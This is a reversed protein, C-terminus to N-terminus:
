LVSAGNAAEGVDKSPQIWSDTRTSEEALKPRSRFGSSEHIVRTPTPIDSSEDQRAMVERPQAYWSAESKLDSNWAGEGAADTTPMSSHAPGIMIGLAGGRNRADGGQGTLDDADVDSPARGDDDDLDPESVSELGTDEDQDWSPPEDQM